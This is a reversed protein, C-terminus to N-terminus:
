MDVMQRDKGNAGDVQAKGGRKMNSLKSYRCACPPPQTISRSLCTCLPPPANLPGEYLFRFYADKPHEWSSRGSGRHHFFVAGDDTRQESWRYAM